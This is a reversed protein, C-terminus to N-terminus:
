KRGREASVARSVDFFDVMGSQLDSYAGVIYLANKELKERITPSHEVLFRATHEVHRRTAHELLTSPHESPKGQAFDRKAEKVAPMLHEILQSLSATAPARDQEAHEITAKIAGCLGHGKIVILKVGLALVSFETSAIAPYSVAHGASRVVFLDGIGQDFVIEPPVRSDSCSLVTVDPSQGKQALELLRERSALSSVSRMNSAFRQNGQILRELLNEAYKPINPSLHHKNM